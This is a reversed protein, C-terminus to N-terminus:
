IIPVQEILQKWAVPLMEVLDSSNFMTGQKEYLQHGALKNLYSAVVSSAFLPSNAIFGLISGALVDGTGGKTMGANGGSVLVISQEDWIIDVPGKLLFVAGRFIQSFECLKAQTSESLLSSPEINPLLSPQSNKEFISQILEEREAFFVNFFSQWQSSMKKALTELEVPHPTLVSHAPIWEPQIVQLAGADIVWKKDFGLKTVVRTVAITNNEWDTASLEEFTLNNLEEGSFRSPIDRRMGPGILISDSEKIYSPLDERAVVVGDHGYFKADYLLQNNEAVSSYFTMDTQRSAALFSWRSAAHFLDSGGIILAKGNEGKHSQPLPLNLQHLYDHIHM